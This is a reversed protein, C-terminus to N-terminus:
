MPRKYITYGNIVTDAKFQDLPINWISAPRENITLLYRIRGTTLDQNLQSYDFTKDPLTCCDVMDMNPVAIDKFFLTKFFDSNANALNLVSYGHMQPQLYDRVQKQQTYYTKKQEQNQLFFLYGEAVVHVFFIFLLPLFGAVIKKILVSSGGTDYITVKRAILIFSLFFSENFYGATSGWKLSTALSFLIQIVFIAALGKDETSVPKTWQRIALITAIYLPLVWLSNMMRKFIDTYFWSLDIRNKLASITNSFFFTYVSQYTLLTIAALVIFFICYYVANKKQQQFLLWTLVLVPVIIGNQKSLVCAVSLIALLIMRSIGAASRNTLVYITAAYVCLLLSDSRSFTYGLLCIICAFCALALMALEKRTNFRKRLVQLLFFCTAADCVLSVSRCLRYILIPDDSSISFLKGIGACIHYYLPSYLTIAYPYSAPDNYLGYDNMYRIVGYVFNNDIGGVEGNYSFILLFRYLLLGALIILSLIFAFRYSNESYNAAPRYPTNQTM